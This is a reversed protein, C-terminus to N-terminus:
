RLGDLYYRTHNPKDTIMITRYKESIRETFSYTGNGIFDNGKKNKIYLTDGTTNWTFHFIPKGLGVFGNHDPKFLWEVCVNRMILTESGGEDSGPGRCMIWEGLLKSDNQMPKNQLATNKTTVNKPKCACAMLLMLLYFKIRMTKEYVGREPDM